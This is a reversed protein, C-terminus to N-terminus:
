LALTCGTREGPCGLASVGRESGGARSDSVNATRRERAPPADGPSPPLLFAAGLSGRLSPVRRRRAERPLARPGRCPHTPHPPLHGGSGGGPRPHSVGGWRRLAAAGEMGAVTVMFSMSVRLGPHVCPYRATVLQGAFCGCAPM